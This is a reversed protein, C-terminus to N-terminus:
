SESRDNNLLSKFSKAAIGMEQSTATLASQFRDLDTSYGCLKAATAVGASANARACDILEAGTLPEEGSLLKAQSEGWFASLTCIQEEEQHKVSWRYTVAQPDIGIEILKAGMYYQMQNLTKQKVALPQNKNLTRDLHAQTSKSM